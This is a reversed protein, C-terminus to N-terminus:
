RRIGDREDADLVEDLATERTDDDDPATHSQFEERDWEENQAAMFEDTM